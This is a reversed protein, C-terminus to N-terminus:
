FVTLLNAPILEEEGSALLAKIQDYYVIDMAEEDGPFDVLESRPIAVYDV